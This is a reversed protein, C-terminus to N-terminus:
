NFDIIIGKQLFTDFHGKSQTARIGNVNWSIMKVTQGKPISPLHNIKTL